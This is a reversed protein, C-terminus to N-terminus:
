ISKDPLSPLFFTKSLLEIKLAVKFHLNEYFFSKKRQSAAMKDFILIKVIEENMVQM